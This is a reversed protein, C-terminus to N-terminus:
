IIFNLLFSKRFNNIKLKIILDLQNILHIIIIFSLNFLNTLIFEMLYNLILIFLHFYYKFLNYHHGQLIFQDYVEIKVIILRVDHGGWNTLYYHHYELIQSQTLLHFFYYHSVIFLNLLYFSNSIALNILLYFFFKSKFYNM